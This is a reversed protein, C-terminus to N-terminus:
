GGRKALERRAFAMARDCTPCLGRVMEEVTADRAFLISLVSLTARQAAFRLARPPDVKLTRKMVPDASETEAAICGICPPDVVPMM